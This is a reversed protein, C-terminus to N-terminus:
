PIEVSGSTSAVGESVGNEANGSDEAWLRLGTAWLESPNASLRVLWGAHVPTRTEVTCPLIDVSLALRDDRLKPAPIFCLLRDRGRKSEACLVKPADVVVNPDKGDNLTGAIKPAM